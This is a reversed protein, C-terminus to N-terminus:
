LIHHGLVCPQHHLFPVAESAGHVPEEYGSLDYNSSLLITIEILLVTPHPSVTLLTLVLNRTFHWGDFYHSISSYKDAMYKIVTTHRDTTLSKVHQLGGLKEAVDELCREFGM